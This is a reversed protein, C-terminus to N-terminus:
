MWFGHPNATARWGNSMYKYFCKQNSKIDNVLNSELQAKDMRMKERCLSMLDKYEDQSARGKKWHDYFGMKKGSNRSFSETEPLGIKKGVSKDKPTLPHGAGTDTPNEQLIDKRSSIKRSEKLVARQPLRDVLSRFLDCDVM